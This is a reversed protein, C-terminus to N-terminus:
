RTRLRGGDPTIAGPSEAISGGGQMQRVTGALSLVSNAGPQSARWCHGQSEACRADAVAGGAARTAPVGSWGVGAGHLDFPRTILSPDVVPDANSARNEM